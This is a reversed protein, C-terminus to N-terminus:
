PRDGGTKGGGDITGWGLVYPGGSGGFVLSTLMLCLLLAVHGRETGRVQYFPSERM